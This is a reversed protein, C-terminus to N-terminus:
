GDDEVDEATNIKENDLNDEKDADHGNGELGNRKKLHSSEPNHVSDSDSDGSVVGNENGPGDRNLILSGYYTFMIADGLEYDKPVVYIHYCLNHKGTCEAGDLQLHGHGVFASNLTLEFTEM